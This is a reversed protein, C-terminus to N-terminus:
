QETVFMSTLFSKELCIDKRKLPWVTFTTDSRKDWAPVCGPRSHGEGCQERLNQRRDAEGAALGTEKHGMHQDRDETVEQTGARSVEEGAVFATM